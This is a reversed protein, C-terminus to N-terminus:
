RCVTVTAFPDRACAALIRELYEICHEYTGWGNPPNLQQYNCPDNRLNDLAQQLKPLCEYAPREHFDKLPAGAKTWMASLNSTMNNHDRMLDSGCTHCSVYLDYSM